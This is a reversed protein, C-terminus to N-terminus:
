RVQEGHPHETQPVWNAQSARLCTHYVFRWSSVAEFRGFTLDQRQVRLMQRLAVEDPTLAQADANAGTVIFCFYEPKETPM